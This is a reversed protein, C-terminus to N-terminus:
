ALLLMAWVFFVLVISVFVAASATDKARGALEHFEVGARDVIAEIASNILEMLLVMFLSGILLVREINSAGLWAGVPALVCFTITELRFAEEHRWASKLGAISFGTAALLRGIGKKKPPLLERDTENM